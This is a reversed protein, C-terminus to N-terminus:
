KEEGCRYCYGEHAWEHLCEEKPIISNQAKGFYLLRGDVKNEKDSLQIVHLNSLTITSEQACVFIQVMQEAETTELAYIFRYITNAELRRNPNDEEREDSGLLKSQEEKYVNYDAENNVIRAGLRGIEVDESIKVDFILLFRGVYAEDDNGVAFRTFSSKIGSGKLNIVWESGNNTVTTSDSDGKQTAFTMREEMISEFFQYKDSSKNLIGASTTVFDFKNSDDVVYYEGNYLTKYADCRSCELPNDNFDHEGFAEIVVEEESVEEGDIILIGCDECKQHAILGNKACTASVGAIDHLNEHNNPDIELKVTDESVVKGNLLIAKCYLCQQHAINGESICTAAKAPIDFLTHTHVKKNKDACGVSIAIVFFILVSLVYFIKTRKM